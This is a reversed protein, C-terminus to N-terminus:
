AVALPLNDTLFKNPETGPHFFGDFNGGVGFEEGWGFANPINHPKTGEHVFLSYSTRTPSCPTTDSVIRIVFGSEADEEVRKVITDELCGSDRPAQRKAALQVVTAREILKVGVPGTPSRLLEAMAAGDTILKVEAV